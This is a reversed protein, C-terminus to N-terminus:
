ESKKNVPPPGQTGDEEFDEVVPPRSHTNGHIETPEMIAITETNSLAAGGIALGALLTMALFSSKIAGKGGIVENLKEFLFTGKISQIEEKTFNFGYKYALSLLEKAKTENSNNGGVVKEIEKALHKNKSIEELFSTTQSKSM